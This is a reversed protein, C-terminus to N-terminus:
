DHGEAPFLISLVISLFIGFAVIGIMVPLEHAIVDEAPGIFTLGSRQAYQARVIINWKNLLAAAVGTFPVVLSVARWKVAVLSLIFTVLYLLVVPTIWSAVQDIVQIYPSGGYQANWFAVQAVLLAVVSISAAGHILLVGNIDDGVKRIGYIWMALIAAATAVVFTDAFYMPLLTQWNRWIWLATQMTFLTAPYVAWFALPILAVVALIKLVANLFPTRSKVGLSLLKYFPNRTSLYRKYNAPAFYLLTFLAALVFGLPWLVAGQLTILALGPNEATPFLHSHSFLLVARDPNRLDALPGLLVVTYFALGVILLVPVTRKLKNFLYAILALLLLDAGSILLSYSFLVPLWQLPQAFENPYLYGLPYTM